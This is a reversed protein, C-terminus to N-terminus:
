RPLPLFAKAISRIEKMYYRIFADVIHPDFHTNKGDELIKIAEEMQMPDRYHRKATVAEFVDAVALIRAGLPIQLDRLGKPYGTGDFKEHHAGAVEPVDRYIGEFNIKKLIVGTKVAHTKIEEYEEPTLRGPKKLIIDTIGIKGYDHLLSAVRIMECFEKPMNLERAIGLSYETVRTSHGSTLPDRADITSALAELISHFQNMRAEILQANDISIGIQPVIGMLLDIDSQLLQRKTKVNDVALIGMSEQGHIIPCCIFSKAGMLKMFELSRPSLGSKIDDVDNILFPTRKKFCVVFVGTSEPRDLHFDLPKLINLQDPMYGFGACFNLGTRDSNVLLIMGRDYDLRNELSKIVEALIGDVDFQRSLARSIENVLLANNYNTGLKELLDETSRRLNDIAGTLETKDHKSIYLTLGTVSVLSIITTVLASPSSLFFYIFFSPIALLFLMYNRLKEWFSSVPDQWALVYRCCQGGRFMCEPHEIYQLKRNFLSAIVEFYGFRNECQFPMEQVGPKATVKIEVENHGLPKSEYICSRTFNAAARGIIQYARAPGVFALVYAKFVSLTDANASYRGAERAINPNNTMTVLNEFFKNVQSQTFWCSEDEVQFPEMEAHDLLEPIDVHKYQDKILRVFSLIIKSNYLPTESDALKDM